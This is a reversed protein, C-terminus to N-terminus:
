SWLPEGHVRQKMTRKKDRLAKPGRQTTYTSSVISSMDYGRNRQELSAENSRRTRLGDVEDRDVMNLKRAGSGCIQWHPIRNHDRYKSSETTVQSDRPDFVSMSSPDDAFMMDNSKFSFSGDRNQTYTLQKHLDIDPQGPKHDTFLDAHDRLFLDNLHEIVEVSTSLGLPTSEDIHNSQAWKRALSPVTSAFQRFSYKSGHRNADFISKTLLRINVDSLFEDSYTLEPVHVDYSTMNQHYKETDPTLWDSDKQEMHFSENILSTFFETIAQAM